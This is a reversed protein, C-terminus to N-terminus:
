TDIQGAMQQIRLVVFEAPKLPAFGVSINVIGANIDTQTTTEGDCKVFYADRPSAGQFAGQRFMDHMFAGLNLRIQAWLPEDNPEFVVWKTGRFLSEELFLTLRRVPIYKWDSALADAGALTRAGWAISSYVPFTRLCNVGLPNLVGNENDTLACGLSEINRLRAETGAPAKWVGRAADTRAWLGAITGSAAISRARGQALPDAVNTRPFYVAANPDRLGDNDALWQQMDDLSRGNKEPLDVIVMARRARAYDTAAAYLARMQADPLAAAEPVCLINILDVEDLAHLGTKLAASGLFAALPVSRVTADAPQDGGDKGNALGTAQLTSAVGAGAVGLSEAAPGTLELAVPAGFGSARGLVISLREGSGIAEVGVVAGALVPRLAVPLEAAAARLAAELHPAFDAYSTPPTAGYDLTATAAAEGLKIPIEAKDAPISFPDPLKTGTLRGSSTAPRGKAGKEATLQVLRSQANVVDPAHNPAGVSVTLNRFTESAVVVERAGDTRVEAVSLNFLDAGVATDYDVALRLANGWAGPNDSSRGRVQRGASVGLMKEGDDDYLLGTAPAAANEALDAVRVVWAEGGGNAFFQAVAYSTESLRDLGGCERELDAVSLLQIARDVVGRGFSGVFAAVSTAVGTVGHVGSSLEEIYVGPYTLRVAM